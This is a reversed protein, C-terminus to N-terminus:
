ERERVLTKHLLRVVEKQRATDKCVGSVAKLMSVRAAMVEEKHRYAMVGMAERGRWTAEVGGLCRGGDGSRPRSLDVLCQAMEEVENLVQLHTLLPYM